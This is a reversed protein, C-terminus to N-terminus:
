DKKNDMETPDVSLSSDLVKFVENEQPSGSVVEAVSGNRMVELIRLICDSEISKLEDGPQLQFDEGVDLLVKKGDNLTKQVTAIVNAGPRGIAKREGKAFPETSRILANLLAQNRRQSFSGLGFLWSSKSSRANESDQWVFENLEADYIYIEIGAKAKKSYIWTNTGWHSSLENITIRMLYRVNAREAIRKLHSFKLSQDATANTGVVGLYIPELHEPAMIDFPWKKKSAEKQFKPIVGKLLAFPSISEDDRKASRETMVAPPLIGMVPKKSDTRDEAAFSFASLLMSCLLFILAPWKM